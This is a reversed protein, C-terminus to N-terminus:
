WRCYGPREDDLERRAVCQRPRDHAQSTLMGGREPGLFGMALLVLDAELEFQTGPVPRFELRGNERVTEVQLAHLAKVRGQQDGTFRETSVAFLREGGEEHASSVRFINPWL